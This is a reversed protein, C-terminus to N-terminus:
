FTETNKYCIKVAQNNSTRSNLYLDRKHKCSIKIGKTIWENSKFVKKQTNTPFSAEFIRLISQFTNFKLDVDHSNNYVLKWNENRLHTTFEKIILDNILRTQKRCSYNSVVPKVDNIVILQADHDSLGNKV